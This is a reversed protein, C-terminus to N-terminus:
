LPRELRMEPNQMPLLGGLASLFSLAPDNDRPLRGRIHRYGAERAFDILCEGIETAIGRRRWEPLIWVGLTATDPTETNFDLAGFGVAKGDVEALYIAGQDGLRKMWDTVQEASRASTFAVPNPEQVVREIIAAIAPADKADAQRYNPEVATM